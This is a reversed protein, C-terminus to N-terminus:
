SIDFTSSDVLWLLFLTLREMAVYVCSIWLSPFSVIGGCLCSFFKGLVMWNVFGMQLIKPSRTCLSKTNLSHMELMGSYEPGPIKAVDVPKGLKFCLEPCSMSCLPISWCESSSLPITSGNLVNDTKTPLQYWLNSGHPFIHKFVSVM